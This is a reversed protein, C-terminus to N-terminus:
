LEFDKLPPCANQNIDIKYKLEKLSKCKQTLMDRIELHSKCKDHM